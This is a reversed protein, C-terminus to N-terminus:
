ILTGTLRLVAVVAAACADLLETSRPRASLNGRPTSQSLAVEGTSELARHVELELYRIDDSSFASAGSRVLLARRWEPKTSRHSSLRGRFDESLGVYAWPRVISTATLTRETGTRVTSHELQTGTLVYVGPAGDWAPGPDLHRPVQEMVLAPHRCLIEARGHQDVAVDVQVSSVVPATTPAAAPAPAPTPPPGGRTPRDQPAAEAPADTLPDLRTMLARVEAEVATPRFVTQIAGLTNTAEPNLQSRPFTGLWRVRRRHPGSPPDQPDHEYAGLRGVLYDRAMPLRPTIVLDDADMRYAFAVLQAAANRQRPDGGRRRVEAEDLDRLDEAAVERFGVAVHGEAVFEAVFRAREGARVVWVSGAVGRM